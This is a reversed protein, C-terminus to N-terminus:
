NRATTRQHPATGRDHPPLAPHGSGDFRPRNPRRAMQRRSSVRRGHVGVGRGSGGRFVPHRQSLRSRFLRQANPTRRQLPSPMERWREGAKMKKVGHSGAVPYGIGHKKLDPSELLHLAVLKEGFAALTEFSEADRPLPLRPFDTKLFEAYRTRYTPAHFVAYAYHFVEEPTALNEIRENLAAMFATSLNPERGIGMAAEGETPYIWLPFVFTGDYRVSAKHESLGRYVLASFPEKTVRTTILSLNPQLLHQMVKFRHDGREILEKRYLTFRIDFPRYLIPLIDASIDGTLHKKASEVWEIGQVITYKKTADAADLRRIDEFREELTEKQYAILLYDKRTAIGWGNLPFIENM